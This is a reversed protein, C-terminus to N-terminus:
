GRRKLRPGEPSDEVLVGRELLAMRLADARAYDRAKRAEERQGVLALVEPAWEAEPGPPTWFLGLVSGLGDLARAGALAQPADGSEVARNVERALDFLYGLARASNFDDDMAERFSREAQATAEAMPGHPAPAAASTWSGARELASGLRAYATGAEALREENFDIPSRYHTSLLYFRV